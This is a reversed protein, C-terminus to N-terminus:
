TNKEFLHIEQTVRTVQYFKYLSTRNVNIEELSSTIKQTEM